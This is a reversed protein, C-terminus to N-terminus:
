ASWERAQPDDESSVSKRSFAAARPAPSSALAALDNVIDDIRTVVLSLHGEDPYLRAMAGPIHECLWVGHNFPVMRDQAGHWVAVPRAIGALDFGWDAISALVDDRWGAIGRSLARRTFEAMFPAFEGSLAAKDVACVLGEWTQAVTDAQVQSLIPAVAELLATLQQKGAVAARFGAVNEPGMGALWDLGEAGYPALGALSVAARCRRPLLAACALAYPGGGSWGITVFSDAAIADLVAAVETAADAVSRGPQPTSGAYGPRSWTVLSLGHREAADLLPPFLLAASPTGNHFVLPMADPRGGVLVELSRGDRM